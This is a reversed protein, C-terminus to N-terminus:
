FHEIIDGVQAGSEIDLDVEQYLHIDGRVISNADIEIEPRNRRNGGFVRKWWNTNKRVILDGEVISGNRIEIDGSTTQIDNAVTTDTIRITGNVTSLKGGIDTGRETRIGGNVTSVKEEIRVERGIRIGGNVTEASTLSSEDDITIGGNVTSLERASSGRALNISGNVSSVNGVRDDQQVKVASNVKRINEVSQASVEASYLYGGLVVALLLASTTKSNSNLARM